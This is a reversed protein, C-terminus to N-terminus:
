LKKHQLENGDNSSKIIISIIMMIVVIFIIIIFRTDCTDTDDACSGGDNSQEFDGWSAVPAVYPAVKILIM